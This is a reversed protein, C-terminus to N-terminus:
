LIHQEATLFFTGYQM